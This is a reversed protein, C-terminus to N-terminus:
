SLEICLGSHVMLDLSCCLVAATCSSGQQGSRPPTLSRTKLTAFQPRSAERAHCATSIGYAQIGTLAVAYGLRVTASVLDRETRLAGMLDMRRLDFWRELVMDSCEDEGHPHMPKDVPDITGGPAPEM